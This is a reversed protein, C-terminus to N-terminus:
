ALFVYLMYNVLMLVTSALLLYYGTGNSVDPKSLAQADAMVVLSKTLISLQIVLFAVIMMILVLLFVIKSILKLGLLALIIGGTLLITIAICLYFLTQFVLKEDNSLSTYNTNQTYTNKINGLTSTYYSIYFTKDSVSNVSGSPTSITSSSSVIPQSAYGVTFLITIIAFIILCINRFLKM